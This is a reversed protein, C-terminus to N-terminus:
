RKRPPLAPLPLRRSVANKHRTQPSPRTRVSAAPRVAARSTSRTTAEHTDGKEFNFTFQPKADQMKTCSVSVADDQMVPRPMSQGARREWFGLVHAPTRWHSWEKLALSDGHIVVAPIHLLSMQIYCMHALPARIDVLTAHMVRQYNLGLDRLAQAAAIIMVGTGCAPEGVSFWGKEPLKFDAFTMQAMMYALHFPTFAVDTDWKSAMEENMYLEGLCDHLSLEPADKKALAGAVGHSSDLSNVVCALMEAIGKLEEGTYRKALELYRNERDRREANDPMVANSLSVAAMEAWDNLLSSHKYSIANLIKLFKRQHDDV